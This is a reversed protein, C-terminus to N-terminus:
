VTQVSKEHLVAWSQSPVCGLVLVLKSYVHADSVFMCCVYM